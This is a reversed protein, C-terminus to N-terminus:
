MWGHWRMDFGVAMDSGVVQDVELSAGRQALAVVARTCQGLFTSSDKLHPWLLTRQGPSPQLGINDTARAVPKRAFAKSRSDVLWVPM